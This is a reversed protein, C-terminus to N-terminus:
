GQKCGVADSSKSCRSPLNHTQRIMLEALRKSCTRAQESCQINKAGTTERTRHMDDLAVERFGTGRKGRHVWRESTADVQDAVNM